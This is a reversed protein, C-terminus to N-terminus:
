SDSQVAFKSIYFILKDLFFGVIGIYGLALILESFKGSNYSDWIFFGIGVGGTLMEAAVIALWSLGVAIRLGTFIYPAASPILITFFYEVKSLHLVKAVNRYDQPVQQVGIATNMLIPWISTIFIVFIAAAESVEWGISKLPQTFAQFVALAIPLWALPPITRLVQFIPDFARYLLINTGIAIGLSVGAAVAGSYGIGVRKLSNLVLWGMGKDIELGEVKNFKGDFFPHLILLKTDEIVKLPPPLPPKPGSCAVQWVFLLFLFALIPPVIYPVQKQLWDGFKSLTRKSTLSGATM